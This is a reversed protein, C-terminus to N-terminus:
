GARCTARSRTTPPPRTPSSISSSAGGRWSPCSTPPTASCASRSRAVRARPPACVRSRTTSRTPRRTSTARRSGDSSARRTSRSASSRAARRADGRAAPRRGDRRARRHPDHPGRPVAVRLAARGRGRVDPLHGPPDGAHRHLDVVRRDDPRVDDAGGGRPPSVRGVDGVEARAALERDPRAAGAADHPVRRGAQRVARAADRRRGAAAAGPRDGEAGRALAGGQRQRRLRRAGRPAGRGGRRPQQAAHPAAGRDVVLAREARHRAAGPDRLPRRLAIRGARRGVPRSDCSPKRREGHRPKQACPRRWRYISWVSAVVFFFAAIVVAKGVAGGTVWAVLVILIALVGYVILTDRYPHKPPPAEPLGWQLRPSM